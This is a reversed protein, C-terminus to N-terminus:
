SELWLFVLIKNDPQVERRSKGQKKFYSRWRNQIKKAEAADGAKVQIAKDNPLAKGMDRLFTFTGVVKGTPVKSKDIVLTDNKTVM